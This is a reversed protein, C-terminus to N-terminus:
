ALQPCQQVEKQWLNERGAILELLPEVFGQALDVGHSIRFYCIVFLLSKFEAFFFLKKDDVTQM